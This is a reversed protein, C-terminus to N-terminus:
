LRRELVACNKGYCTWTWVAQGLTRITKATNEKQAQLPFGFYEPISSM